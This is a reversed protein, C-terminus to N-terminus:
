LPVIVTEATGGMEICRWTSPRHPISGPGTFAEYIGATHFQATQGASVDIFPLFFGFRKGGTDISSILAVSVLLGLGTNESLIQSATFDKKFAGNKYFLASLSPTAGITYDVEVGSGKLVFKNAAM